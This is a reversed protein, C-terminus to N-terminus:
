KCNICFTNTSKEIKSFNDILSQKTITTILIHDAYASCHKLRTSIIVRLDLQKLIVDVVVCFSTASLPDGQKVGSEV